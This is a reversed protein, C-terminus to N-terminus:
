TDRIEIKDAKALFSEIEDVIYDPTSLGAAIGCRMKGAFWERKLDGVSEVLRVEPCFEGAVKALAKTNASNAGGAIVMVDCKKALEAASEQNNRTNPCITDFAEFEAAREALVRRAAEFEARTKTTQSILAAARGKPVDRIEDASSFVTVNPGAREAIAITEPHRPDGLLFIHKGEAALREVIKHVNRVTPCTGDVIKVGRDRLKQEAMRGIGHARIIAVRHPPIADVDEASTINLGRALREVEFPNHIIDGGAVFCGPNQEALEIARRVGYCFGLVSAREVKM